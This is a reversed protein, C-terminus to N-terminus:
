REPSNGPTVSADAAPVPLQVAAPRPARIPTAGSPRGAVGLRRARPQALVFEQWGAAVSPFHPTLPAAGSFM